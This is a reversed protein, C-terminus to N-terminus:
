LRLASGITATDSVGKLSQSKSDRRPNWALLDITRYSVSCIPRAKAYIARARQMSGRDALKQYLPLFKRRGQRLLFARRTTHPEYKHDIAQM